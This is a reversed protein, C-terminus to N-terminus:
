SNLLKEINEIIEQTEEMSVEGVKPHADESASPLEREIKEGSPTRLSESSLFDLSSSRALPAQESTPSRLFSASLRKNTERSTPTRRLSSYAGMPTAYRLPSSTSPISTPLCHDLPRQPGVDDVVYDHRINTTNMGPFNSKPKFQTSM